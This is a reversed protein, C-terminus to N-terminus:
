DKTTLIFEPPDQLAKKVSCQEAARLIATRYKQPFGDPLQLVISVQELRRTEENREIDLNLALGTTDINRQQCFSLAYFGACCAISSLFLYYPNPGANTGGNELPQDTIIDFGGVNAQVQVGEPFTVNILAM